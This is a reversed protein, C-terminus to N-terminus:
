RASRSFVSKADIDFGLGTTLFNVATSDTTLGTPIGRKAQQAREHLEDLVRDWGFPDAQKPMPKAAATDGRYVKLHMAFADIVDVLRGNPFQLLQSEVEPSLGRVLHIRGNAFFPVLGEIRVEKQLRSNMEVIDYNVGRRIMEDRFIYKLAAQYAVSEIVFVVKGLCKGAMNLAEKTLELPNLHKHVDKVWYMHQRKSEDTCHTVQTIATECAEDRESIAPDIAISHWGTPVESPTCYQFWERQFKRQSADLPRNLFLCSFMYPGVNKKIGELKEKSYLTPFNPEDKANLAPMDFFKYNEQERVHHVLDFDAWRTTVIIRIRRGKPVLLNHAQMHWGVAKEVTEISPATTEVGMDSVDPATTDDELIVNYHCGTKITNMGCAEFTAEPFPMPRNIEAAEDTWRCHRVPLLNPWLRRFLEHSDFIGRISQLKKRANPHTNTAILFRLNPDRIALWIPLNRTIITSKLSGRPMTICLLVEQDTRLGQDIHYQVWDCLREHTPDFWGPDQMVLSFTSFLEACSTRIKNPDVPKVNTDLNIM